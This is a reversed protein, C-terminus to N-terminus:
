FQNLIPEGSHTESLKEQTEFDKSFYQHDELIKEPNQVRKLFISSGIIEFVHLL